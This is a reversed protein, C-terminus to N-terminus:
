ERTGLSEQLARERALVYAEIQDSVDWLAQLQPSLPHSLDLFAESLGELASRLAESLHPPLNDWVSGERDRSARENASASM